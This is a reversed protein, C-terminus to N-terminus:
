YDFGDSLETLYNSYKKWSESSGTYIPKRIQQNSLTNVARNNTEPYFCLPNSDLDLFNLLKKIIEKPHATLADYDLNFISNAYIKNWHIMLKEYSHYYDIITNINNGWAMDYSAFYNRYISWCVAKPDRYTHIIKANPFTSIILDIVLFNFPTKDTFLTIKPDVQAICKKYNERINIILNNFYELNNHAINIRENIYNTFFDIEGGGFVFPHASIIQETLTSGSRPMGLIFIPKFNDCCIKGQYEFNIPNDKIFNFYKKCNFTNKNKYYNNIVNQNYKKSLKLHYFFKEPNNNREYIDSITKHFLLNEEDSRLNLKRESEIMIKSDILINRLQSISFLARFYEIDNAIILAKEFNILAKKNEGISKYLLGIRHFVKPLKDKPLTELSNVLISIAKNPNYIKKEWLNAINLLVKINIPGIKLSKEYASIANKFEYLNTYTQGLNIYVDVLHPNIEEARKLANLADMSKNEHLYGLALNNHALANYPHDALFRRLLKIGDEYEKLEYLVLSLNLYTEPINPDQTLAKQLFKKAEIFKKTQIYVQSLLIHAIPFNSKISLAKKFNKEAINYKKFNFNILGLFYHFDPIEPNKKLLSQIIKEAKNVDGQNLFSQAQKFKYEINNEQKM